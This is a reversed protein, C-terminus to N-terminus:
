NSHSAARKKWVLQEIKDYLTMGLTYLRGLPAWRSLLMHLVNACIIGNLAGALVDMPYHVGVFVRSLSVLAAIVYWVFGEKRRYFFIATAITFAATAHDSPFSANIAHPILQHVHHAVFPRSRYFFDGIVGGIGLSLCAAGLAEVIMRRNADTRTFWYVVVALYFLYEADSALFRMFGDLLGSHGAMNNIWTFLQLDIRSLM